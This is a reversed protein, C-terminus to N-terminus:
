GGDPDLRYVGDDAGDALWLRGDPAFALGMVGDLGTEVRDLEVGDLDYAVLEGTGHDSVFLRGDRLEIGSPEVLGEAFTEVTAGLYSTYEALPEMVQRLDRDEAATSPDVRLIRGTGADAIYLVGTEADRVIHGPVGEVRTLEVDDYRRVIGDSHDDNGPGHDVQFDFYDLTGHFGDFSWYANDHDWALGMCLPSEHLMDIHSGLKRFNDREQHVTAYVDLDADWLTPGMFDEAGEIGNENESEQCTAFTGPAGFAISSPRHMFHESWVDIREEATQEETGPAFYLVTGDTRQNVTWLLDAAPDFALDRPLDLGEEASGFRTLARDNAFGFAAVRPSTGTPAPNETPACALTGILLM